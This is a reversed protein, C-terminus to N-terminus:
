KQGVEVWCINGGFHRRVDSDDYLKKALTSKGVGGMGTVGVIGVQLAVDEPTLDLSVLGKLEVGAAEGALVGLARKLHRFHEDQGVLLDERALEAGGQKRGLLNLLRLTVRRICVDWFGDVSELRAGPLTPM